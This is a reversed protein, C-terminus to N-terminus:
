LLPAVLAIIGAWMAASLIVCLLFGRRRDFQDHYRDGANFGADTLEVADFRLSIDVVAM